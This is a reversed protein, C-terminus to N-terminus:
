KVVVKASKNLKGNAVNVIYIGKELDSVPIVVDDCGSASKVKMGNLNYITANYNESGAVFVNINGNNVDIMVGKEDYDYVPAVSSRKLVEKIASYVDVKGYGFRIPNAKTFEDQRSTVKLIENIDNWKLTPDAELLLACSGAFAPSSMSTGSNSFWFYEEGNHDAVATNYQKNDESTGTTVENKKLYYRSNSSVINAGPMSIHPLQRGDVLIGYSSSSAYDQPNASNVRGSSSGKDRDAYVGKLVGYKDRNMYSGVVFVNEGCALDNVSNMSSGATFGVPSESVEKSTASDTYKYTKDFTFYSVKANAYVTTGPEGEIELCLVKEGNPNNAALVFTSGFKGELCYRNNQAMVASTLTVYGKYANDFEESTLYDYSGKQTYNSSIIRKSITTSASITCLNVRSKNTANYLFVTATFPKENNSWIQFNGSSLAKTTKSSLLVTKISKKADTFTETIWGKKAGDNSASMSIIIDKGVEALARNFASSGDKPGVTNGISFNLVAPKGTAKSEEAVKKAMDLMNTTYLPGCGVMIESAPAVGYYPVKKNRYVYRSSSFDKYSLSDTINKGDTKDGYFVYESYYGPGNYSGAAIGLVHTGHNEDADDTEFAAVQDPTTYAEYDSGSSGSYCYVAKVRSTEYNDGTRFNIHNPDLGSDYIATIVGNGLFPKGLEADVGATSKGVLNRHVTSIGTQNAGRLHIMDAEVQESLEISIVSPLKALEYIKDADITASVVSGFINNIVLSEVKLDEASKGKELVFLIDVSPVERIGDSQLESNVTSATAAEDALLRVNLSLKSQADAAGAGLTVALAAVTLKHLLNKM